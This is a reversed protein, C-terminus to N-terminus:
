KAGPLWGGGGRSPSDGEEFGGGRARPPVEQGGGAPGSRQWSRRGGLCAAFLRARLGGGQAEEGHARLSCLGETPFDTSAACLM